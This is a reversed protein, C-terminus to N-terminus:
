RDSDRRYVYARVTLLVMIVTCRIILGDAPGGLLLWVVIFIGFIAVREAWDRM